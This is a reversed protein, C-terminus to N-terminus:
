CWKYKVVYLELDFGSDEEVTSVNVVQQWGELFDKVSSNTNEEFKYEIEM